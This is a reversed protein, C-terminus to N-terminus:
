QPACTRFFCKLSWTRKSNEVSPHPHQFAAAGGQRCVAKITARGPAARSPMRAPRQRASCRALGYRSGMTHPPSERARVFARLMPTRRLGAVSAPSRGTPGYFLGRPSARRMQAFLPRACPRKQTLCSAFGKQAVAGGRLRWEKDNCPSPTLAGTCFWCTLVTAYLRPLPRPCLSQAVRTKRPTPRM